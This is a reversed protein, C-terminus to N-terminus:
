IISTNTLPAGQVSILRTYNYSIPEPLNDIEDPLLTMTMKIMDTETDLGIGTIWGNKQRNNTFITDKFGRYDMLDDLIYESNIPLSFSVIKKPLTTWSSLNDLLKYASSTDGTGWTTDSDIAARDTFFELESIDIQPQRIVKTRLYGARCRDWITKAKTYNDLGGFCSKWILEGNSDVASELPFTTYKDVNAVFFRNKYEGQGPDYSYKLQFNNFIQSADSNEYSEISDRIIVTNNYVKDAVTLGDFDGFSRLGRKGNRTTFMCVFSSACLSNLLDISNRQETITTGVHWNSRKTGVDGYDILAASILDCYELIHRYTNYVTNTPTIGDNNVSEGNAQVFLDGNITDVESSGILAIQKLYIRNPQLYFPQDIEGINWDFVFRMQCTIQPIEQLQFFSDNTFAFLNRTTTSSGTGLPYDFLSYFNALTSDTPKGIYPYFENPIFNGIMKGTFRFGDLIGITNSVDFSLDSRYQPSSLSENYKDYVSCVFCKLDLGRNLFSTHINTVDLDALMYIKDYSTKIQSFNFTAFLEVVNIGDPYNCIYNFLFPTGIKSNNTITSIALRGPATYMTYIESAIFGHLDIVGFKEIEVPLREYKIIKGDISATNSLLNLILNSNQVFTNVAFSVDDYTKLQENYSWLGSYELVPNGSVKAPISYDSVKFWFTDASSNYVGPVSVIDVYYRAPWGSGSTTNFDTSSIPKNDKDLLPSALYVKTVRINGSTTADNDLILYVQDKNANTGSIVNLYKGKLASAAIGPMASDYVQYLLYIACSSIGTSGDSFEVVSKSYDYQTAAAVDGLGSATVALDYYTPETDQKLLKTKPVEGLVMPIDLNEQSDSQMIKLVNRHIMSCDDSVQVEYDIETYPNNSIKGKCYQYFVDNIVVWFIVDCGTLPISNVPDYNGTNNPDLCFNWFKTDNRIKFSFSTDTSYSGSVTIDISKEPASTICDRTLFDEWFVTDVNQGGVPNGDISIEDDGYIPIVDVGNYGPRDTVFRFIGSSLGYSSSSLVSDTFIEVAYHIVNSM